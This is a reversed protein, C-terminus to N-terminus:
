KLPASLRKNSSILLAAVSFLLWPSTFLFVTLTAGILRRVERGDAAWFGFNVLVPLVGFRFVPALLAAAIAAVDVRRASKSRHAAHLALGIMSLAPVLYVLATFFRLM